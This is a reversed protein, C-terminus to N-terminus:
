ILATSFNYNTSCKLVVYLKEANSFTINDNIGSECKSGILGGALFATLNLKKLERMRVGCSMYFAKSFKEILWHNNSCFYVSNRDQFM